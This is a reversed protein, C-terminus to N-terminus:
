VIYTKYQNNFFKNASNLSKLNEFIGFITSGSGSMMAFFAGFELLKNKIMELESYKSFAFNEFDNKIKPLLDLEPSFKKGSLEKLDINSKQPKMNAYAEKTSIGFDPKVLLIPYSIKFDIPTFHEGIGSAFTPAPNIFFPVDAGIQASLQLLEYTSLNLDFLFNLAKLTEAANSSGGGLGAGFPINKNLIIKVPLKDDIYNELKNVAKLIINDNQLSPINCEFEFKDNKKFILHDYLKTIPYFITEINHYGDPRKETVYLGINIKCISVTDLYEM